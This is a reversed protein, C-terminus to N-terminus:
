RSGSFNFFKEISVDDSKYGGSRPHQTREEPKLVQQREAPNKTPSTNQINQMKKIEKIIENITGQLDYILKAQKAILESQDEVQVKLQRATQEDMELGEKTKQYADTKEQLPKQSPQEAVDEFSPVKSGGVMVDNKVTDIAEQTSLNISHIRLAKETEQIKRLNEIDM